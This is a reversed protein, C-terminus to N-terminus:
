PLARRMARALMMRKVASTRKHIRSAESPRPAVGNDKSSWMRCRAKCKAPAVPVVDAGSVESSTEVSVTWLQRKRDRAPSCKRRAAKASAAPAAAVPAAIRAPKTEVFDLGWGPSAKKRAAPATKDSQSIQDKILQNREIADIKTTRWPFSVKAAREVAISRQRSRKPGTTATPVQNPRVCRTKNRTAVETTAKGKAKKGM